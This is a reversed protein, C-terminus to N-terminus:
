REVLSRFEDLERLPEFDPDSAAELANQPSLAISRKLDDLASRHLKRREEQERVAKSKLSYSCARNYLVDAVDKDTTQGLRTKEELFGTLLQISKDYDQRADYLRGLVIHLTRHTPYEKVFRELERTNEELSSPPVDKRALDQLTSVILSNLDSHLKAEDVKSTVQQEMLEIREFLEVDAARFAPALVLRTLLYGGLFGVISFYVIMAGALVAASEKNAMGTAIYAAAEQLKGPVRELQTLGLGVLIKTLWDSIQELNTNVLQAYSRRGQETAPRTGSPAGSAAQESQLTRPIGFLFGVIAGAALCAGAWLPAAVAQGSIAAFGLVAAIGVFTSVIISSLHKRPPRFSPM